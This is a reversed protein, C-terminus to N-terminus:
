DTVLQLARRMMEKERNEIQLKKMIQERAFPITITKDLLDIGQV